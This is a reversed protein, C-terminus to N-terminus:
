LSVESLMLRSTRLRFRPSETLRRRTQFAAPVTRRGAGSIRCRRLSECIPVEQAGGCEAHRPATSEQRRPGSLFTSMSPLFPRWMRAGYEAVQQATRPSRESSCLAVLTEVILPCGNM